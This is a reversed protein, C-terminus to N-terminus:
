APKAAFGSLAKRGLEIVMVGVVVAAVAIAFEKM